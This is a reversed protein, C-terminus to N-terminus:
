SSTAAQMTEVAATEIYAVGQRLLALAQQPDNLEYAMWQWPGPWPPTDIPLKRHNVILFEPQLAQAAHLAGAHYRPLVWGIRIPSHRRAHELAKLEFSILVCQPRYPALLPLLRDMVAAMGFHQLSERKIEVFATASPFGALLQLVAELGPISETASLRTRRLQGSDQEMLLANVGTTRKLNADHHVFFHGDASMQVDFEIGSCGLELAARLGSLSNEPYRASYGRHAVLQLKM